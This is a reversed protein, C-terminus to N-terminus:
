PTEHGLAGATRLFPSNTHSLRLERAVPPQTPTGNLTRLAEPEPTHSDARPARRLTHDDTCDTCLRIILDKPLDTFAQSHLFLSWRERIFSTLCLLFAPEEAVLVNEWLKLILDIMTESMNGNPESHTRRALVSVLHFMTLLLRARLHPVEYVNALVLMGLYDYLSIPTELVLDDSYLFNVLGQMWLHPEPIFMTNSVSEAMGSDLLRRFHPWRALLIARHVKLVRFQQTELPCALAIYRNVSDHFSDANAAYDAKTEASALAVIEFDALEALLLLRLLDGALGSGGSETATSGARLGRAVGLDTLSIAFGYALSASPELPEDAMEPATAAGAGATSRLQAGLLYLAGEAVFLHKWEYLRADRPDVKDSLRVLPVYRLETINFSAISYERHTSTSGWLPMLVDLKVELNVQTDMYIHECESSSFITDEDIESGRRAAPKRLLVLEGISHDKLDFWTLTHNVHIMNNNLGGFAYLKGNHESIFHDFRAVFEISGLWHGTELDYSYLDNLPSLNVLGGSIYVKRGDASLCCAHRLRSSPANALAFPPPGVWTRTLVNYIMMLSDKAFAGPAAAPDSAPFEDHPIGGFVLINGEGIYVALHGERYLGAHKDDVHWTGSRLDLLYVNSDLNDFEDFGGFLFVLETGPCPVLTAKVNYLPSRGGFHRVSLPQRHKM